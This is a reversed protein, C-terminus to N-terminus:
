SSRRRKVFEWALATETHLNIVFSVTFLIDRKENEIEFSLFEILLENMLYAMVFSSNTNVEM